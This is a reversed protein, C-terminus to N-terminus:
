LGKQQMYNRMYSLGFQKLSHSLSSLKFLVPSFYLNTGITKRKPLNYRLSVSMIGSSQSSTQVLQYLSQHLRGLHYKSHDRLASELDEKITDLMRNTERAAGGVLSLMPQWSAVALALEETVSVVLELLTSQLGETFEGDWGWNLVDYLNDVCKVFEYTFSTAFKTGTVHMTPNSEPELYDKNSSVAYSISFDFFGFPIRDISQLGFNNNLSLKRVFTTSGTRESVIMPKRAFLRSPFLVKADDICVLCVKVGREQVCEEVLEPTVRFNNSELLCEVIESDEFIDKLENSNVVSRETALFYEIAKEILVDVPYDESCINHKKIIKM